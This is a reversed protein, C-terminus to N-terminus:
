HATTGKGTRLDQLFDHDLHGTDEPRETEPIHGCAKLLHASAGPALKKLVDLGSPHIVRDADGWLFFLPMKLTPIVPELFGIDSKALTMGARRNFAANDAAESALGHMVVSPIDPQIDFLFDMAREFDQYGHIELPDQLKELDLLYESKEPTRIGTPALLGLTIVRDPHAGAYLGAIGGGMSHGVLHFRGLHLAAVIEDFRKLQADYGYDASDSRASEGFGPLDIAIVHNSAAMIQAFGDWADKNGGLDHLLVLPDGPGSELYVVRGSSIQIEKKELEALGRVYNRAPEVMMRAGRFYLFVLLAALVVASIVKVKM